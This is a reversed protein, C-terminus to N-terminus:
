WNSIYHNGKQHIFAIYTGKYKNVAVIPAGNEYTGKYDGTAITTVLLIGDGSPNKEDPKGLIYSALKVLDTAEDVQQENQYVIIISDSDRGNIKRNSGGWLSNSYSGKDRTPMLVLAENNKVSKLANYVDKWDRKSIIINYYIRSVDPKWTDGHEIAKNINARGLVFYVSYNSGKYLNYERVKLVIKEININGRSLYEKPIEIKVKIRTLPSEVELLYTNNGVIKVDLVKLPIFELDSKGFLLEELTRPHQVTTTTPSPKTLTETRTETVTTTVTDTKTETVTKTVTEKEIKTETVTKTVPPQTYTITITQNGRYQELRIINSLGSYVISGGIIGGIAAALLAKLFDRRTIQGTNQAQAM